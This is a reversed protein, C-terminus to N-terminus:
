PKRIRIKVKKPYSQILSNLVERDAFMWICDKYIKAKKAADSISKEYGGILKAANSISPYTEIINGEQDCKHIPKWLSFTPKFNKHDAEKLYNSTRNRHVVLKLQESKTILRLNSLRCNLGDNDISVVIRNDNKIIHANVFASYVLRRVSFEHRISELMLTVQLIYMYDNVFRNYHKKVNQRLIRGKVFQTGCRSHSVTRDLSKVRGLNSVQFSGEFDPIDRWIEGNLLPMNTEEYPYTRKIIM